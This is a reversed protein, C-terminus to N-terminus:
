GAVRRSLVHGELKEPQPRDVVITDGPVGIERPRDMAVAVGSQTIFLGGCIIFRSMIRHDM